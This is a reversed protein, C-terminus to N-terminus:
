TGSIGGIKGLAVAASEMIEEYIHPAGEHRIFGYTEGKLCHILAEEARADGIQGLAEAAAIQVRHERDKLGQMLPLVARRDRLEGLRNAADERIDPDSSKLQRILHKVQDRM